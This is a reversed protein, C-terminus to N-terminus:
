PLGKTARAILMRTCFLLSQDELHTSYRGRGEGARRSCSGTEKFRSCTRSVINSSVAFRRVFTHVHVMRSVQAVETPDM